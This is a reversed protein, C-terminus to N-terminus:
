DSSVSGVVREAGEAEADEDELDNGTKAQKHRYLKLALLALVVAGIGIAAWIGVSAIAQEAAEGLFYAALGVTVAWTIGGLANWFLFTPWKMGNMGALWASAIRLLAVWRGLFVAKAGHRQFFPEGKHLARLRQHHFPGPAVFVRRGVKRGIAFGINDGIIAGAAAFAIVLEIKLDGTAALLCAGIYATEGPIPVGMTEVALFLFVGIYGIDPPISILTALM